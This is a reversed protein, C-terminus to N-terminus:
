KKVWKWGFLFTCQRLFNYSSPRRIHFEFSNFFILVQITFLQRPPPVRYCHSPNFGIRHQMLQVIMRIPYCTTLVRGKQWSSPVCGVCGSEIYLLFHASSKNKYKIQSSLFIVHNASFPCM